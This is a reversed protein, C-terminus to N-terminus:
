AVHGSALAALAGADPMRGEFWLSACAASMARGDHGIGPVSRLSWNCAIGRRRAEAQGAELYYHARAYRHPGQAMAPPDSPLHGGTEIDQDGALILMPYALLRELHAETLGVGGLGEPFKRDMDPLTYWGPNGIAVAKWPAHAQSGMLRHVFQGGASHGFLYTNQGDILEAAVMDAVVRGPLAYAWGDVHRPNGMATYALGNNYSEVGPWVADSFTPAVILLKHQDAAPIWFDRYDDGNRMVGHQVIVVPRDPTYGYPRYTNLTIPRDANRDEDLYAFDNRGAHGLELALRDANSLDAPKM